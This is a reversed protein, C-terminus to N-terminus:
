ESIVNDKGGIFERTQELIKYKKFKNPIKKIKPYGSIALIGRPAIYM